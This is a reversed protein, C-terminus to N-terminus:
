GSASSSEVTGGAELWSAHRSLWGERYALRALVGEIQSISSTAAATLSDPRQMAIAMPRRDRDLARTGLRTVIRALLEVDAGHPATEFLGIADLAGRSIVLSSPNLRILPFARPATVHGDARMRLLRSVTASAGSANLRVLALAIRDPHSWDDADQFAIFAGTAALIGDNRAAYPGGAARRRIAKFRPDGAASAMATELTADTSADDVFVLELAAHSQGLISRVAMSATAAANRAAMVVSVMAGQRSPVGFSLDEMGISEGRLPPPPMGSLTFVRSIGSAWRPGDSAHAAIGALVAAAEPDTADLAGTIAAAEEVRGLGLLCAARSAGESPPLLTLAEEASFPAIARALRIRHSPAFARAERARGAHGLALAAELEEFRNGGPSTSAIRRVALFMGLRALVRIDEAGALALARAQEGRRIARYARMRSILTIPV